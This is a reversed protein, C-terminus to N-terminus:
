GPRDEGLAALRAEEDDTLPADGDRRRTLLLWAGAGLAVLLAPTLWLVANGVSFPPRFLVFEGYREVLFARIESDSRGAAVQERVIMRLDHALPAESDDINENQCVLCRVERFIERARAEGAPDAMREAPDAAAGMCLVAAAILLARRM